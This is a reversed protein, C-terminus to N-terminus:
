APVPVPTAIEGAETPILGQREVRREGRRLMRLTLITAGLLATTGLSVQVSVVGERSWYVDRLDLLLAAEDFTLGMGAGFPFALRREARESGTLLAAGGSGFALLIGPVFHHIHRGGVRVNRFPWWGSRIGSTSLRVLAFAGVFGALLNFLMSEGRPAAGYGEVVVAVTDHTAQGAAGIAAAPSPIAPAQRVRRRALRVAEGVIVSGTTAVALGALGVTLRDAGRGRSNRFRAV